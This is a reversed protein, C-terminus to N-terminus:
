VTIGLDEVRPIKSALMAAAMVCDQTLGKDEWQYRGLERFLHEIGDGRLPARLEGRELCLILAQVMDVKSKASFLVGEVPVQVFQLVPDGVGTSDLFTQGPYLAWRREIRCAVEPWPARRFREFAVVQAPRETVDATIGVTWDLKRALDWATLYRRAELRGDCVVCRPVAQYVVERPWDHTGQHVVEDPRGQVQRMWKPDTWELACRSCRWRAPGLGQAGDAMAAIIDPLFLQGEFAPLDWSGELLAVRERASLQRLRGVYGPDANALIPNDVHRAAIFARSMPEPDDDSPDPMFAEDPALVGDLYPQVFRAKVWEFGVGIPNTGARMRPWAKPDTTRLLRIAFRWSPEDWETLEDVAIGEFQQGQYEMISKLGHQAHGFRLRSGHPFYWTHKTANYHEGPSFPFRGPRGPGPFGELSGKILTNELQPFMRRFIIVESGPQEMAQQFMEMLLSLSKGPGAAGGFLAESAPCGHFANQRPLPEYPLTLVSALSPM